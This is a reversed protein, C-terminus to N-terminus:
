WFLQNVRVSILMVVCKNWCSQSVTFARLDDSPFSNVSTVANLQTSNTRDGAPWSNAKASLPSFVRRRKYVCVYCTKVLITQFEAKLVWLRLWHLFLLLLLLLLPPLLLLLSSSPLLLMLEERGAVFSNNVKCNKIVPSAQDFFLQAHMSHSCFDSIQWHKQLQCGQCADVLGFAHM